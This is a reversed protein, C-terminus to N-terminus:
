FLAVGIMPWENVICIRMLCTLYSLATSLQGVVPGAAAEYGLPSLKVYTLRRLAPSKANFFIHDSHNGACHNARNLTYFPTLARLLADMSGYVAEWSRHVCGNRTHTSGM